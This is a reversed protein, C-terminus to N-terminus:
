ITKVLQLQLYVSYFEEDKIITLQHQGNPYLVELRRTINSLGIGNTSCARENNYNNRITFSFFDDEMSTAMDIHVPASQIFKAHKFANEVFVILILPAIQYPSEKSISNVVDLKLMEHWRGTIGIINVHDQRM